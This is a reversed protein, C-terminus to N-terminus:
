TLDCVFLILWVGAEYRKDFCFHFYHHLSTLELRESLGTLSGWAVRGSVTVLVVWRGVKDEVRAGTEWLIFIEVFGGKRFSWETRWWKRSVTGAKALSVKRGLFFEGPVALLCPHAKLPNTQGGWRNARPRSNSVAYSQATNKAVSPQPPGLQRSVSM